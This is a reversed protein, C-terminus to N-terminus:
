TIMNQQLTNAQLHQTFNHMTSIKKIKQVNKHSNKECDPGNPSLFNPNNTPTGKQRAMQDDESPEEQQNQKLKSMEAMLRLYEPNQQDEEDGHMLNDRTPVM